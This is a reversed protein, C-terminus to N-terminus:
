PARQRFRKGGRENLRGALLKSLLDCTFFRLVRLLFFLQALQSFPDGLRARGNFILNRLTEFVFSCSDRSYFALFSLFSSCRLYLGFALFQCLESLNARMIAFLKSFSLLGM